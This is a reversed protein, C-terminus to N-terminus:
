THFHEHPFMGEFGTAPKSKKKKSRSKKKKKKEGAPPEPAAEGNEDILVDDTARVETDVVAQSPTTINDHSAM